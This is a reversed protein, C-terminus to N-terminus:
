IQESKAWLYGRLTIDFVKRQGLNQVAGVKLFGEDICRSIAMEVESVTLNLKAAISSVISKVDKGKPNYSEDFGGINEEVYKIISKMTEVNYTMIIREKRKLIKEMMASFCMLLLWFMFEKVIAFSNM